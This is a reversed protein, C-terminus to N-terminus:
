GPVQDFILCPAADSHMVLDAAMGIQEEWSAGTIVRTEGLKDALAVWERLDEYEVAIKGKGGADATGAAVGGILNSMADNM